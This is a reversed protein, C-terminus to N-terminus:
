KVSIEAQGTMGPLLEEKAPDLAVVVTFLANTGQVGSAQPLIASVKGKFTTDFPKLRVQAPSGIKIQALDRETLNNTRFVVSNVQVLTMAPSAGAVSGVAINVDQVTCDCPSILKAKDLNRQAREVSSKAQALELESVKQQEVTQSIPTLLRDLSAQAQAVQAYSQTLQQQTPAKQADLYQQYARREGEYASGVNAEQSKCQASGVGSSGCSADRSIQASYLQNKAQNWNRLALEVNSATPGNKVDNYAQWASNLSARASDIESQRSSTPAATQAQRAQVLNFQETAQTLTDKLTTDDLTALVDGKKVKQGATANVTLVKGSTEFAAAIPPISLALVGDAAVSQTADVVRTPLPPLPTPTEIGAPRAGNPAGNLQVSCASLALAGAIFVFRFKNVKM